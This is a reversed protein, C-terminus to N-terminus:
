SLAKSSTILEGSLLLEQTKAGGIQELLFVSFWLCAVLGIAVETFWFPQLV